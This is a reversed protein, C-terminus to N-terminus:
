KKEKKYKDEKRILDFNNPKEEMISNIYEFDLPKYNYLEVNVNLSKGLFGELLSNSYLKKWTADMYHIHGYFNWSSYHSKNYVLMPYHCLTIPQKNDTIDRIQGMWKVASYKTWSLKDHNGIIWFLNLRHKKFSTMIEAVERSSKKWFADGLFYLNDGPKVTEFINGLITNDHEEVTKFGRGQLAM